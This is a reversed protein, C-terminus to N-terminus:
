DSAGSAIGKRVKTIPGRLRTAERKTPRTGWHHHCRRLFFPWTRLETLTRHPNTNAVEACKEFSGWHEYGDYTLALEFIAHLDAEAAPAQALTPRDNAVHNPM